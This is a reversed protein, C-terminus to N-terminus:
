TGAIEVHVGQALLHPRGVLANGAVGVPIEMKVAAGLVRPGPEAVVPLLQRPQGRLAGRAKRAHAIRQADALRLRPEARQAGPLRHQVMGAPGAHVQQQGRAPDPM